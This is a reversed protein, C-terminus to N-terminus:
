LHIEYRVRVLQGIQDTLDSRHPLSHLVVYRKSGSLGPVAGPFIPGLRLAGRLPTRPPHINLEVSRHCSASEAGAGSDSNVCPSARM